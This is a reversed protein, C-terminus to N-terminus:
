LHSKSKCDKLYRDSFCRHKHMEASHAGSPTPFRWCHSQICELQQQPVQKYLNCAGRGGWRQCLGMQERSQGALIKLQHLVTIEGNSRRTVGKGCAKFFFAQSCFLTGTMSTSHNDNWYSLLYMNWKCKGSNINNAYGFSHRSQTKYLAFGHQVCNPSFPKRKNLSIGSTM